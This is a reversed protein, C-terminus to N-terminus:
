QYPNGSYGQSAAMRTSSGTYGSYGSAAGSPKQASSGGVYSMSNMIAGTMADRRIKDALRRNESTRYKAGVRTMGAQQRLDIAKMRADFIASMANYDSRMKIRALMEPDVTGGSAAMAAVADSQLKRGKYHEIQAQRVGVNETFTAQRELQRAEIGAMTEDIKGQARTLAAQDYAASLGMIQQTAQAAIVQWM